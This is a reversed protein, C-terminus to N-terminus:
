YADNTFQLAMRSGSRLCELAEFGGLIVEKGCSLAELARLDLARRDPIFLVKRFALESVELITVGCINLFSNLDSFGKTRAESMQFVQLGRYGLSCLREFLAAQM